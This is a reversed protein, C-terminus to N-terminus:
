SVEGGIPPIPAVYPKIRREEVHWTCIVGDVSPKDYRLAYDAAGTSYCTVAEVTAPVKRNAWQKSNHVVRDGIQYKSPLKDTM